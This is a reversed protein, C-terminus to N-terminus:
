QVVLNYSQVARPNFSATVQDILAGNVQFRIVAGTTNCAPPAGAAPLTLTARGNTDTTGRGCEATGVLAFVTAGTVIGSGRRVTLIVTM